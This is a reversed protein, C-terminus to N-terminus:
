RRGVTRCTESGSSLIAFVSYMNGKTETTLHGCLLHEALDSRREDPSGDGVIFLPDRFENISTMDIAEVNARNRGTSQVPQLGMFAIDYVEQEPITRELVTQWWSVSSVFVAM